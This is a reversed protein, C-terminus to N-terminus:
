APTQNGLLHFCVARRVYLEFYDMIYSNISVVKRIERVLTYFAEDVGLRTKASTEVFPVAYRHALLLSQERDVTRTPLDCKNGVVQQSPPFLSLICENSLPVLCNVLYCVGRSKIEYRIRNM